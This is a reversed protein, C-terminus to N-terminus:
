RWNKKKKKWYSDHPTFPRQNDKERQYRCIKESQFPNGSGRAEIYGIFGPLVFSEDKKKDYEKKMSNNNAVSISAQKSCFTSEKQKSRVTGSKGVLSEVLENKRGKEIANGIGVKRRRIKKEM